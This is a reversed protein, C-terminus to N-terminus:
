DRTEKIRIGSWDGFVPGDLTMNGSESEFRCVIYFEGTWHTFTASTTLVGTSYNLTYDSGETLETANNFLKFTGSKIRKIDAYTSNSSDVRYRKQLQFTTATLSTTVGENYGAVSTPQVSYDMWNKFLFSHLDGKTLRLFSLLYNLKARSQIVHEISFSHLPTEWNQNRQEYGGRTVVVTNDFRPLGSMGHSISEDFVIDLVAM